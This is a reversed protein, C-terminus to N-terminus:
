CGTCNVHMGCCDCKGHHSACECSDDQSGVILCGNASLFGGEYLQPRIDDRVVSVHAHVNVEYQERQYSVHELKM